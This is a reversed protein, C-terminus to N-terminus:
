HFTNYDLPTPQDRAPKLASFAYKSFKCSKLAEEGLSIVSM